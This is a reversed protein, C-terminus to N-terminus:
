YLELNYKEKFKVKTRESGMFVINDGWLRVARKGDGLDVEFVSGQKLLNKVEDKENIVFLCRVTERVVIGGVGVLAQNKARVVRVSAGNFDAKVLKACVSASNCDGEGVLARVYERWLKNLGRFMGYTLPAQAEQM